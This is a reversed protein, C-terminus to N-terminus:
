NKRNTLFVRCKNRISFYLAGAIYPILAISVSSLWQGNFRGGGYFISFFLHVFLGLSLCWLTKYSHRDLMSPMWVLIFIGILFPNLFSFSQTSYFFKIANM